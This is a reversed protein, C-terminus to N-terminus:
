EFASRVYPFVVRLGLSRFGLGLVWYSNLTCFASVKVGSRLWFCQRIGHGKSGSKQVRLGMFGLGQIGCVQVWPSLRRWLQSSTLACGPSLCNRLVLAHKPITKAKAYPKSKPKLTQIYPKPMLTEPYLIEPYPKPNLTQPGLGWVGLSTHSASIYLKIM